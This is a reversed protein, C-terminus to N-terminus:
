IDVRFIQKHILDVILTKLGLVLAAYEAFNISNTTKGEGGKHTANVIIKTM